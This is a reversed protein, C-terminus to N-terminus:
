ICMINFRCTVKYNFNNLYSYRYLLILTLFCKQFYKTFIKCCWVKWTQLRKQTRVIKRHYNYCLGLFTINLFCLKSWTVGRSLIRGDSGTATSDLGSEGLLNLLGETLQSQRRETRQQGRGKMGTGNWGHVWGGGPWGASRCVGNERGPCAKKTGWLSRCLTSTGTFHRKRKVREAARNLWRIWLSEWCM